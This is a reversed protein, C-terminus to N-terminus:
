ISSPSFGKALHESLKKFGEKVYEEEVPNRPPAPLLQQKRRRERDALERERQALPELFERVQKMTPPFDYLGPLGSRPDLAERLHHPAYNSFLSALGALYIKPDSATITPYFGTLIDAAECPSLQNESNADQM